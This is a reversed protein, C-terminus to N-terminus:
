KLLRALARSAALHTEASAGFLSSASQFAAIAEKRRGAREHIRGVELFAEGIIPAPANRAERIAHEFEVLAARDDRRAELVRGYRYRAVPDRNNLALARELSSAAATADKRELERWGALALRFAEAHRPNPAKRLHEAADRKINLTDVGPAYTAAQQYAALAEKRSNLRDHAEGLRLYALALAGHPADPELAIVRELEDIADDTLALADLHHAIALRARVEALEAYQVRKARAQALLARWSELSATIDHQYVDQIEAIQSLFLPNTPHRKQLGRLLELARPTQHEYWLYIIHLQYDAEGQLLRGTM